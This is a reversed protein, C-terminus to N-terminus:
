FLMLLMIWFGNELCVGLKTIQEETKHDDINEITNDNIEEINKNEESM